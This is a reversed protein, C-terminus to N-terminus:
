LQEASFIFNTITKVAAKAKAVAAVNGHVYMMVIM